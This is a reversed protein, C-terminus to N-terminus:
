KLLQNKVRFFKAAFSVCMLILFHFIALKLEGKNMADEHSLMHEQKM